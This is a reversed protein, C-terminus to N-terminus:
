KSTKTLTESTLPRRSVESLQNATADPLAGEEPEDTIAGAERLTAITDAYLADLDETSIGQEYAAAHQALLSLMEKPTTRSASM